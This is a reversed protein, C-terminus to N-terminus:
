SIHGEGLPESYQTGSKAVAEGHGICGGFRGLALFDWDRDLTLSFRWPRDLTAAESRELVM